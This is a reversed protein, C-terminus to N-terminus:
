DSFDRQKQMFLYYRQAGKKGRPQPHPNIFLLRLHFTCKLRGVSFALILMPKSLTHAGFITAFHKSGSTSLSAFFESNGVFWAM